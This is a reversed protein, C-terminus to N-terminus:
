LSLIMFNINNGEKYRYGRFGWPLQAVFISSVLKSCINNFSQPGLLYVFQLVFFNIFVNHTTCSSICIRKLHMAPQIFRLVNLFFIINATQIVQLTFPVFFFNRTKCDAIIINKLQM